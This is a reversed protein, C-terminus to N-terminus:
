WPFKKAQEISPAFLRNFKIGNGANMAWKEQGVLNDADGQSHTLVRDKLDVGKDEREDCGVVIQTIKGKQGVRMASNVVVEAQWHQFENCSTSFLIHLRDNPDDSVAAAGKAGIKKHLPESRLKFDDSDKGDALKRKAGQQHGFARFGSSV